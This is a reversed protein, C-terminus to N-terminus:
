LVDHLVEQPGSDTNQSYPQRRKWSPPNIGLDYLWLEGFLDEAEPSTPDVKKGQPLLIYGPEKNPNFWNHATWYGWSEDPLQVPCCIQGSGTLGVEKLRKAAQYCSNETKYGLM